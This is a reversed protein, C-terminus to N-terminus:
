DGASLITALSILVTVLYPYILFLTIIRTRTLLDPVSVLQIRANLIM